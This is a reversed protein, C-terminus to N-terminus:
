SAKEKKKDFREARRKATFDSLLILEVGPVEPLWSENTKGGYVLCAQPKLYLLTKLFGQIFYDRGLSSKTTRCQVSVLPAGRPIGAVCFGLSKSDSWNL